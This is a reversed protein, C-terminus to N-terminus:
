YILVLDHLILQHHRVKQLHEEKNIGADREKLLEVIYDAKRKCNPVDTNNSLQELLEARSVPDVLDFTTQGGGTNNLTITSGAYVPSWTISAIMLWILALIVQGISITMEIKM